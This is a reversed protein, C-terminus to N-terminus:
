KEIDNVYSEKFHFENDAIAATWYYYSNEIKVPNSLKSGVVVKAMLVRGDPLKFHYYTFKDTPFYCSYWCIAVEILIVIVGIIIVKKM